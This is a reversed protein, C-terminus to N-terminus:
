VGALRLCFYATPISFLLSDARDFMGGHGPILDSFDKVNLTRKVLSEALDGIQGMSSAILSTLVCTLFPIRPFIPLAGIVVGTLVASLAGLICGEVTKNPSVDPALKHRGFRRGFLFASNDCMWTSLCALTLTEQWISSSGAQMLLFFLFGPYALGAATLLSGKGSVRKDVIGSFMCLFIGATFAVLHLTLDTHLLAMVAESVLYLYLVWAACKVGRERLVHCCEYVCLIGAATFFLTRSIESLLVCSVTIALLVVASVVRKKM